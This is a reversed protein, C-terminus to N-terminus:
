VMETDAAPPFYACGDTQPAAMSDKDKKKRGLKRKMKKKGKLFPKVMLGFIVSRSKGASSDTATPAEKGKGDNGHADMEEYYGGGEADCWDEGNTLQLHEQMDLRFSIIENVVVAKAIARWRKMKRQVPRLKEDGTVITVIWAVTGVVIAVLCIVLVLTVLGFQGMFLISGAVACAFLAAFFILAVNVIAMVAISSADRQVDEDTYRIDGGDDEYGEFEEGEDNTSIGFQGGNSHEAISAEPQDGSGTETTPPAPTPLPRSLNNSATANGGSSAVSEAAEADGQSPGGMAGANPESTAIIATAQRRGATSTRGDQDVHVPVADVASPSSQQNTTTMAPLVEQDSQAPVDPAGIARPQDGASAGSDVAAAAATGASVPTARPEDFGPEANEM